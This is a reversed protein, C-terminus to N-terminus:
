ASRLRRAFALAGALSLALVGFALLLPQDSATQPLTEHSGEGATTDHAGAAGAAGAGAEGAATAPTETSSGGSSAQTESAMPAGEEHLKTYALERGSNAGGRVPIIRRAYYQGEKDVRFEVWAVMGPALDTPVMTHTDMGLTVQKGQDTDVVLTQDNVSAVKGSIMPQTALVYDMTNPIAALASGALVMVAIVAIVVSKM